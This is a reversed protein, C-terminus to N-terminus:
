RDRDERLLPLSDPLPGSKPSMAAIRDWQVALAESALSQGIAQRLMMEAQKDLSVHNGAALLELDRLVDDSVAIMGM